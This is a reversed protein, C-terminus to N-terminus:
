PRTGGWVIMAAVWGGALGLVDAQARGQDILGLVFFFTATAGALACLYRWPWPRRDKM